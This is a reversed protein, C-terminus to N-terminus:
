TPTLATITAGYHRWLLVFLVLGVLTWLPRYLWYVQRSTYRDLWAIVLSPCVGLLIVIELALVWFDTSPSEM